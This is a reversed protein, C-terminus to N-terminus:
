ARWTFVRMPPVNWLELEEDPAGFIPEALRRVHGRVQYAVFRGGPHLVDAIARLTSTAEDFPMTSFPIGSVVLDAGRVGAEALSRHIDAARGEVIHLRPDDITRQLLTAFSRNLEIALLKGDRPMARLLESTVVGTGPGLEVVTRASAADGCAAIRRTLARSSPVVSGVSKPHRLFGILFEVPRAPTREASSDFSAM